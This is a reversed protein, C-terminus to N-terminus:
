DETPQYPGPGVETYPDRYEDLILPAHRTSTVAVHGIDHLYLHVPGGQEAFLTAGVDEVSLWDGDRTHQCDIDYGRRQYARALERMERSALRQVESVGSWQDRYLLGDSEVGPCSKPPRPKRRKQRERAAWRRHVGYVWERVEDATQLNAAQSTMEDVQAETEM